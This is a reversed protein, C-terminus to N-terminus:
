GNAEANRVGNIIPSGNKLRYESPVDKASFCVVM